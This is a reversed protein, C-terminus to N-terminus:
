VNEDASRLQSWVYANRLYERRGDKYKAERPLADYAARGCRRIFAGKGIMGFWVRPDRQGKYHIGRLLRGEEPEPNLRLVREIIAPSVHREGLIRAIDM